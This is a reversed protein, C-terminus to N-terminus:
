TAKVVEFLAKAHSYAEPHDGKWWLVPFDEYLYLANGHPTRIGVRRSGCFPYPGNFTYGKPPVGLSPLEPSTM